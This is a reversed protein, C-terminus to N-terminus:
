YKGNGAYFREMSDLTRYCDKKTKEAHVFDISNKHRKNQEWIEWLKSEEDFLVFFENGNITVSYQGKCLKRTKFRKKM